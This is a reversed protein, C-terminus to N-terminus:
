DWSKRSRRSMYLLWMPLGEGERVGLKPLSEQFRRTQEREHHKLVERSSLIRRRVPASSQTVAEELEAAQAARTWQAEAGEANHDQTEGPGLPAHVYRRLMSLADAKTSPDAEVVLDMTATWALASDNSQLGEEIAQVVPEPAPSKKARNLLRHLWPM